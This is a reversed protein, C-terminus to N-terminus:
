FDSPDGYSQLTEEELKSYAKEAWLKIRIMESEYDTDSIEKNQLQEKLKDVTTSYVWDIENESINM